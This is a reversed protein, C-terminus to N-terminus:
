LTFLAYLVLSLSLYHSVSPLFALSKSSVAKTSKLSTIAVLPEMGSYKSFSPKYIYELLPFVLRVVTVVQEGTSILELISLRSYSSGSFHRTTM